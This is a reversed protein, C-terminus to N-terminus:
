LPLTLVVPAPLILTCPYPLEDAPVLTAPPVLIVASPVPAIENVPFRDELGVLRFIVFAIITEFPPVMLRIESSIVMLGVSAFTLAVDEPVTTMFGNFAPVAILRPDVISPISILRIVAPQRVIPLEDAPLIRTLWAIFREFMESPVFRVNIEAPVIVLVPAPLRATEPVALRTEDPAPVAPLIVSFLAVFSKPVTFALPVFIM